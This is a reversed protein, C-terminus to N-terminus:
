FFLCISKGHCDMTNLINFHCRKYQPPWFSSRLCSRCKPLQYMTKPLQPHIKRLRSNKKRKKRRLDDRCRMESAFRLAQRVFPLDGMGKKPIRTKLYLRKSRLNILRVHSSPQVHHSEMILIMIDSTRIRPNYFKHLECRTAYLRSDLTSGFIM